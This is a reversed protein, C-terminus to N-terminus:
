PGVETVGVGASAAERIEVKMRLDPDEEGVEIARPNSVRLRRAKRFLDFHQFSRGRCIVVLCRGDDGRHLEGRNYDDNLYSLAEEANQLSTLPTGNLRTIGGDTRVEPGSANDPTPTGLDGLILHCESCIVVRHQGDPREIYETRTTGHDCTETPLPPCHRGEESDSPEESDAGNRPDHAVVASAEETRWGLLLNLGNRGVAPIFGVPELEDEVFSAEELPISHVGSLGAGGDVVELAEGGLDLLLLSSDSGELPFEMSEPLHLVRDFAPVLVVEFCQGFLLHVADEGSRGVGDSVFSGCGSTDEGSGFQQRIAARTAEAKTAHSGNEVASEIGDMEDRTLQVSLLDSISGSDSSNDSSAEERGDRANDGADTDNSM